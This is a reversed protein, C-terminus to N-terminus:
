SRRLRLTPLWPQFWLQWVLDAPPQTSSARIDPEASALRISRMSRYRLKDDRLYSDTSESLSNIDQMKRAMLM